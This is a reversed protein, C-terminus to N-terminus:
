NEPQHWLTDQLLADQISEGEYANVWSVATLYWRDNMYALDFTMWLWQEYAEKRLKDEIRQLVLSNISALDQYYDITREVEQYYINNETYFDRANTLFDEGSGIAQKVNSASFQLTANMQGDTAFLESMRARQISDNGESIMGLYAAIVQSPQAYRAEQTVGLSAIFMMGIM